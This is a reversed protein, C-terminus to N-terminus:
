RQWTTMRERYLTPKLNRIMPTNALHDHDWLMTNIYALRDPHLDIAEDLAELQHRMNRLQEVAGPWADGYRNVESKYEALIEGYSERLDEYAECMWDYLAETEM